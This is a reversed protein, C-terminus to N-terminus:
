GLGEGVLFHEFGSGSGGAAELGENAGEHPAQDLGLKKGGTFLGSFGPKESFRAAGRHKLFSNLLLGAEGPKQTPARPNARLASGGSLM